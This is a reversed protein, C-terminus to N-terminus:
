PDIPRGVQSGSIKDGVFLSAQQSQPRSAVAVLHTLCILTAVVCASIFILRFAKPLLRAFHHGKEHFALDGTVGKLIDCEIRETTRRLIDQYDKEVRAIEEQAARISKWSDNSMIIGIASVGGGIASLTLRIWDYPIGSAFSGGTTVVWCSLTISVSFLLWGVRHNLVNDEQTVRARHERYIDLLDM